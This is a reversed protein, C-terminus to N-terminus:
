AGVVPVAVVVVVAVSWSAIREREREFDDSPNENCLTHRQRQVLAARGVGVDADVMGLLATTNMGVPSRLEM